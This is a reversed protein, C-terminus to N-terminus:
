GRPVLGGRLGDEPDRIVKAGFASRVLAARQDPDEPWQIQGSASTPVEDGFTDRKGM